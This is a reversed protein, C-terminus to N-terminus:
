KYNNEDIKRQLNGIAEFSSSSLVDSLQAM